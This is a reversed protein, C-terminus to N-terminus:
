DVFINICSTTSLLLNVYVAVVHGNISGKQIASHETSKNSQTTSRPRTSSKSSSPPYPVYKYLLFDLNSSVTISNYSGVKLNYPVQM